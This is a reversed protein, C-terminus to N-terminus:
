AADDSRAGSNKRRRAAERLREEKTLAGWIGRDQLGKTLGYSRCKALVPCYTCVAKCDEREKLSRTHWDLEPFHGCAGESFFDELSVTDTEPLPEPRPDALYRGVTRYSVRLQDAIVDLAVGQEALKHATIKHNIYRANRGWSSNTQEVVASM